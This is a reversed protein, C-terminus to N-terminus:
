NDEDHYNAIRKENRVLSDLKLDLQSQLAELNVEPTELKSTHEIM